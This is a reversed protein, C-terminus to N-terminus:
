RTLPNSISASPPGGPTSIARRAPTIEPQLAPCDLQAAQPLQEIVPPVHGHCLRCPVHLGPWAGQSRSAVGAISCLFKTGLAMDWPRASGPAALSCHQPQEPVQRASAAPQLGQNLPLLRSGPVLMFVFDEKFTWKKGRSIVYFIKHSNFFLSAADRQPQICCIRPFPDPNQEYDAWLQKTQYWAKKM